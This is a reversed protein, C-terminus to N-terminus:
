SATLTLTLNISYNDSTQNAPITQGLGVGTVDWYCQTAAGSTASAITIANTVSEVFSSAAGLSTNAASCGAQPTISGASPNVQLQGPLTDADAGDACGGPSGAPDNYDYQQTNGGNRWLAGSGDTAALSLSWGPTTTTNSVRIKQNSTGITGTTSSCTFPFGAAAMVYAPSAVSTGTGDVIDVSLSGPPPIRWAIYRYVGGSANAETNTGVTMGTTTLATIRDTTNAVQPIYQTANGALTSPRAIPNTATTRKVWVLDPQLGAGLTIANGAIGTGTYSGVAFNSGAKFGFWRYLSAAANSAANNGLQFGSGTFNQVVGSSEAAASLFGSTDGSQESTRFAGATTTSRKMAVFDMQYPAALITKGSIGTGVYSGIAFDAAGTRTEPNYANGFAQWHYTNGNTNSPTATGLSFGDSNLSTIGGAIDGSAAAVYATTDGAMLSTRFVMYNAANDKIIVLDPKFALGTVSQVAGTGTYSGVAMKFTGVGSPLTTPAGGFALWYMTAGTENVTGNTGVQFGDSQLAQIADSINAVADGIFSADDGNNQINSMLSRRNSATTSSSNKVMVTSPQFGLGTINRNDTGDGTYTGESVNTSTSFAFFYYVAGNTNATAGVNFGKSILQSIYAGTTDAATASGFFDTYNAPMSKTMFYPAANAPKNVAITPRFGINTISRTATGNGTYTGVCFTGTTTCDSGTFASWTYLINAGNVNTQGSLSFGDATFTIDTTTSDAVSGFSGTINAPMASTKYATYQTSLNAAKIFILQPQFGLGSIAHGAAGSGMYYGTQMSFGAARAPTPLSVTGLAVVVACLASLFFRRRHRPTFRKHM